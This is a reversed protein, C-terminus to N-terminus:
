RRTRLQGESWNFEQNLRYYISIVVSKILEGIEGGNVGAGAESQDDHLRPSLFEPM